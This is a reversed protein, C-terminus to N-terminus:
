FCERQPFNTHLYFLHNKNTKLKQISTDLDKCLVSLIEFGVSKKHLCSM